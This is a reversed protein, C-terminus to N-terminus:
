RAQLLHDAVKTGAARHPHLLAQAVPRLWLACVAMVAEAEAEGKEERAGGNVVAEKGKVKLKQSPEAPM